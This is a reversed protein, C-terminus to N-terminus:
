EHTFDNLAMVADNYAKLWQERTPQGSVIGEQECSHLHLLESFADILKDTHELNFRQALNGALAILEANAKARDLGVASELSRCIHWYGSHGCKDCQIYATVDFLRQWKKAKLSPDVKWKGQTINKNM